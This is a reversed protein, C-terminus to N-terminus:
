KTVALEQLLWTRAEDLHGMDFYQIEAKTFPRCFTAMGKHWKKEGLFALREIERIHRLTFKTDEWLAGASWGHFDHMEILMRIKGHKAIQADVEPVFHEYDAAVLKGSLRVLLLKGDQEQTIEIAM